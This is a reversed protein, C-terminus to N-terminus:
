ENRFRSNEEIAAEMQNSIVPRWTEPLLNRAKRIGPPNYLEALEREVLSRGVALAFKKRDGM